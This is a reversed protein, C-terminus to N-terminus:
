REDRPCAAAGLRGLTGAAEHAIEGVISGAPRVHDALGVSQGAYM